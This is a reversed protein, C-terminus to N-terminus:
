LEDEDTRITQNVAFSSRVFQTATEVLVGGPALGPLQKDHGLEWFFVGGLKMEHALQLKTRIMELSDFGMKSSTVGTTAIASHQLTAASSNLQAAALEDYIEAFTQIVTPNDLNRGYAPIGLLIKNSPCSSKLNQVAQRVDHVNGHYAYAYPSGPDDNRILDYTMIHVHFIFPVLDAPLHQNAHLAVSVPLSPRSAAVQYVLQMYSTYEQSSRMGEANFVIGFLEDQQAVLALLASIWAARRDRSEFLSAFGSSRGGGGVVLWLRPRNDQKQDHWASRTREFHNIRWCCPYVAKQQQKQPEDDNPFFDDDNAAVSTMMMVSTASVELSFLLVDTLAAMIPPLDVHFLRYDPLYGAVVFTNNSESSSAPATYGGATERNVVLFLVTAFVVVSPLLGGGAPHGIAKSCRCPKTMATM